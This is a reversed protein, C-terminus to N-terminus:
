MFNWAWHLRYFSRPREYQMWDVGQGCWKIQRWLILSYFFGYLRTLTSRSPAKSFEVSTVLIRTSSSLGVMSVVPPSMDHILLLFSICLMLIWVMIISPIRSLLLCLFFHYQTASVDSYIYIHLIWLSNSLLEDWKEHRSLFSLILSGLVESHSIYGM